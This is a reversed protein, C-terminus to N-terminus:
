ENLTQVENKNVFYIAKSPNNEEKLIIKVCVFTLNCEKSILTQSLTADMHCM